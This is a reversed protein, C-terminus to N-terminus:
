GMAAEYQKGVAQWNVIDWWAKVYDARKNQYHLYYAHEWVDIGLIPEGKFDSIPMLPNDQNPTSGIALERKDNVVLWAWGSGFRKAAAEAFQEKMKEMSGFSKDIASLLTGPAQNGGPAMWSWFKEHNFHGGANNRMATSYSGISQLIDRLSKGSANEKQIAEAMNKAYGAAHKSYHIEMTMADIAPQLDSYAYSLPNQTLGPDFEGKKNPEKCAASNIGSIVLATGLATKGTDALFKRRKM